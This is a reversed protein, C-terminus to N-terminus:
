KVNSCSIWEVIASPRLSRAKKEAPSFFFGVSNQNYKAPITHFVGSLMRLNKKKKKFFPNKWHDVELRSASPLLDLNSTCSLLQQLNTASAQALFLFRFFSCLLYCCPVTLNRFIFEQLCELCVRVWSNSSSLSSLSKKCTCVSYMERRM